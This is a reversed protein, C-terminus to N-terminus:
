KSLAEKSGSIVRDLVAPDALTSIDGLDETKGEAILRLLRRMIKGSGTKPLVPTFQIVNPVAAAGFEKRVHVSLDERLQAEDRGEYERRLTVFAYVGQGKVPHPMAAVAAESVFEHSLLANEVDSSSIRHGSVKIVDDIRGQLWYDGDEDVRCCDGTYFQGPFPGYYTSAFEQHKMYFSRAMGPWPKKIVLFGTENVDADTGDQRIVAPVVGPFPKGASGPKAPAACAIPSIMVGGTETQWWTDVIPCRSGGVKEHYWRWVYPNIIEGVSGLVRLSKLNSKKVWRDGLRMLLRIVTPETYFHTVRNKEIIRWLRDPQPYTPVGEYLVVTAGNALPGYVSYSHGTIWGIDATAWWIDGERVDFVWRYTLATFLLYGATSHLVGKPKGTSGSTYLIFLPDESEMVAPPCHYGVDEALLEEHWWHDRGQEMTCRAGTHRVVFVKKVNPCEELARDASKKMSVRDGASHWGDATVVTRCDSALVRDRLYDPSYGSYIVSHVAGIRACALMAVPLEPIMPLYICVRDGKGVGHKKLVNAFRCVEDLLQQYTLTRGAGPRDPEWILAVKDRRGTRVHRDLCNYSANLRGGSFWKSVCSEEDWSSVEDWDIYWHLEGAAEAWFRDPDEVSRRYIDLFEGQNAIAARKSLGPLPSVKRGRESEAM